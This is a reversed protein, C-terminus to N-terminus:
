NETSNMYYVIRLIKESICNLNQINKKNHGSLINPLLFPGITPIVGLRVTGTLPTIAGKAMDVLNEATLFM